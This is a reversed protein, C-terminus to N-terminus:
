FLSFRCPMYRHSVQSVFGREKWLTGAPNREARAFAAALARRPSVGPLSSLRLCSPCCREQPCPLPQLPSPRDMRLSLSMPRLLSFILINASEGFPPSDLYFGAQLVLSARRGGPRARAPVGRAMGSQLAGASGRHEVTQPLQFRLKGWGAPTDQVTPARGRHSVVWPSGGRVSNEHCRNLLGERVPPPNHLVQQPSLPHLLVASGLGEAVAM